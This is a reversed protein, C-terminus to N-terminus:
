ATARPRTRRQHRERRIALEVGTAIGVVVTLVVVALVLDGVIDPLGGPPENTLEALFQEAAAVEDDAARAVKQARPYGDRYDDSVAASMPGDPGFVVIVDLDSAQLVRLAFASASPQPDSPVVILMAIGQAQAESVVAALGASDVDRARVPSVFVGDSANDIVTTPSQAGASPGLLLASLLAVVFAARLGRGRAHRVWRPQREAMTPIPGLAMPSAAM